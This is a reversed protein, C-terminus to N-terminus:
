ATTAGAQRRVTTKSRKKCWPCDIYTEDTDLAELPTVENQALRPPNRQRSAHNVPDPSSLIPPAM